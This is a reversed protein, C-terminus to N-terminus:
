AFDRSVEPDPCGIRDVRVEFALLQWLFFALV